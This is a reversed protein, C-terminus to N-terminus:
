PGGPGAVPHTAPRPQRQFSALARNAAEVDFADPDFAGGAWTLFQEHEEDTPDRIAALFEEYGTVGGVDEPPCARAGDVCRPYAIGPMVGGVAELFLVHQWNDGFDYTYGCAAGPWDMIQHLRVLKGDIIGSDYEEDPYGYQQTGVVFMYLHSNTWGVAAQVILHLRHLTVSAPVEIVRWVPPEVEMLTIRLRYIIRSPAPTKRRM